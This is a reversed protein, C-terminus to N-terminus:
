GANAPVGIGHHAEIAQAFEFMLQWDEDDLPYDITNATPNHKKEVAFCIQKMVELTIPDAM